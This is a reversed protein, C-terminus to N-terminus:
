VQELVPHVLPNPVRDLDALRGPLVAVRHELHVAVGVPSPLRRLVPDVLLEAVVDAPDLPIVARVLLVRDLQRAAVLVGPRARGAPHDQRVLGPEVRVDAPRPGPLQHLFGPSPDSPRGTASSATAVRVCARPATSPRKAPRTTRGGSPRNSTA